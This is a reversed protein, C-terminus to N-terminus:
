LIILSFGWGLIVAIVNSLFNVVDNDIWRIGRCLELKKGNRQEHETIRKSEPDYYHGQLTAGLYSDVLSGLMGAVAIISALFGWTPDSYDAFTAYWAIAILVSGLLSSLTGLLSIGGSMGTPVPKFTKISVPPKRSLIGAEGAWTDSTSAAIAVGFMVLALRSGGIGYLLASAAALGGNAMVQAWDRTGGKKQIGNDISKSVARSLKGLVNATIFFLMLLAWGGFGTFRYTIFGVLLASIAGSLTLWHLLFSAVALGINVLLPIINIWIDTNM